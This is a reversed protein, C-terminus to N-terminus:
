LENTDIFWENIWEHAWRQHITVFCLWRTENINSVTKCTLPIWLFKKTDRTDGIKPANWKM